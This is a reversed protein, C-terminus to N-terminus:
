KPSDLLGRVRLWAELRRPWSSLVPDNLALGVGHPGNQYVHLEGPVGARRMALYFNISNEAPVGTDGNTTFLFTPPTEGTVQLDSSLSRALGPDADQGLLNRKSGQHTWPDVLSIVPYTLIMFDPRCGARDIPDAANPDGADFHTGTTSALHGGASFGWIGIRDAAIHYEAAHSRVYRIARQADQLEVPHHYKPGLRYKLVFAAVGRANLWQAVATGEKDMSLGGYGGGPCVIIGTATTIQKTPAFILLQPIDADATGLAGPAAGQWLPITPPAPVPAQAALTFAAALFLTLRTM